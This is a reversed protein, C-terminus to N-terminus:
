AKCESYLRQEILQWVQETRVNWTHLKAMEMRQQSMSSKDNNLFWEIQNIFEDYNEATAISGEFGKVGHVSTSVVPRGSALYDFLKLPNPYTLDNLIYPILCVNFRCTYHPLVNFPKEGLFHVNKYHGLTYLSKKDPQGILVLSWEPHQSVLTSLLEFDLRYRLSGIYGIIPKKVTKIDQPIDASKNRFLALDVANPVLYTNHNIKQKVILQAKTQVFILDAKGTIRNDLEGAKKRLQPSYPMYQNFNETHDYCILVENFQGIYGAVLPHGLWLICIDQDMLYRRILIETFRRCLMVNLGSLKNLRFLPWVSMPSIVQVKDNYRWSFGNNLVREWSRQSDNSFPYKALSVLSFPLEIYIVRKVGELQALRCALQQRRRWREDWWDGFYIIVLRKRM